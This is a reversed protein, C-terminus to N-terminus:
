NAPKFLALYCEHADGRSDFYRGNCWESQGNIYKSAVWRGYTFSDGRDIMVVFRGSESLPRSYVLTGSARYNISDLAEAELTEFVLTAMALYEEGTENLVWYTLNQLDGDQSETETELYQGSSEILSHSVNGEWQRAYEGNVVHRLNLYHRVMTPFKAVAEAPLKYEAAVIALQSVNLGFANSFQISNAKNTTNSM